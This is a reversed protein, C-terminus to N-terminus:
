REESRGHDGLDGGPVALRRGLHHQAPVDLLRADDGNGLRAVALADGLVDGDEVERERVILHAADGREGPRVAPHDGRAESGGPVRGRLVERSPPLADRSGKYAARCPGLADALLWGSGGIVRSLVMASARRAVEVPVIVVMRSFFPMRRVHICPGLGIKLASSRMTPRAKVNRKTGIRSSRAVGSDHDDGREVRPAMSSIGSPQMAIASANPTVSAPMKPSMRHARMLFRPTAASTVSPTMRSPTPQSPVPRGIQHEPTAAGGETAPRVKTPQCSGIAQPPMATNGSSTMTASPSPATTM